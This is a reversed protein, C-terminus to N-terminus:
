AGSELWTVAEAADRFLRVSYGANKFLTEMFDHSSDNPAVLLATRSDRPFGLNDLERYAFEYNRSVTQVNPVLRSDILFRNIGKEKALVTAAQSGRRGVDSDMPAFVQVLIHKGSPSVSVRFDGTEAMASGRFTDSTKNHTGVM